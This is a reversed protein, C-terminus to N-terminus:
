RRESADLKFQQHVTGIDLDEWERGECKFLNFGILNLETRSEDFRTKKQGVVIKKAREREKREGFFYCYLSNKRARKCIIKNKHISIQWLDIFFQTVFRILIHVFLTCPFSITSTTSAEVSTLLIKNLYSSSFLRRVISFAVYNLRIGNM